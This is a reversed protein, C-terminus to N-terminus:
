KRLKEEIKNKYAIIETFEEANIDYDHQACLIIGYLMYYSGNPSFNYRKANSPACDLIRYYQAKIM